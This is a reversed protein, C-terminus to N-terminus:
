IAPSLNSFDPDRKEIFATVAEINAPGGALKALGKGEEIVAKKMAERRPSRFLM